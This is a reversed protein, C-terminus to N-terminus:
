TLGTQWLLGGQPQLCFCDTVSFSVARWLVSYNIIMWYCLSILCSIVANLTIIHLKYFNQIKQFKPTQCTTDSGPEFVLGQHQGVEKRM